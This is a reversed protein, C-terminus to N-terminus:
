PELPPAALIAAMVREMVGQGRRDEFRWLSAALDATLSPGLAQRARHLCVRVAEHSMGLCAATESTDLEVVDRLVFVIREPEPLEDIQRELLQRGATALPQEDPDDPAYM